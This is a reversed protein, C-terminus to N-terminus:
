VATISSNMTVGQLEITYEFKSGRAIETTYEIPIDDIFALREIQLGSAGEKENLHKATQPTINIARFTDIARRISINYKDKLARYLGHQEIDEKTLAPFFESALYTEEYLIPENDASRLRIIHYVREETNLKKAIKAPAASLSFHLLTSTPNKNLRKMEDHFSYVTMLNQQVAQGLVFMGKGHVKKIYGERELESMAQRVTTRSLAYQLCLEREFPLRDGEQREGVCIQHSIVEFLQAYMPLKSNKNITM